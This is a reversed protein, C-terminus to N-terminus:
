MDYDVEDNEKSIAGFSWGLVFALMSIAATVIWPTM